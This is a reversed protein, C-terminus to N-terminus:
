KKVVGTNKQFGSFNQFTFKFMMIVPKTPTDADRLEKQEIADMDTLAWAGLSGTGVV